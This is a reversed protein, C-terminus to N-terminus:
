DEDQPSCTVPGRLGAKHAADKCNTVGTVDVAQPCQKLCQHQDWRCRRAHAELCQHWVADCGMACRAGEASRTPVMIYHKSPACMSAAAMLVVAAASKEIRHRRLM